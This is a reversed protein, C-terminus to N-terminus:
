LKRMQIFLLLVSTLPNQIREVMVLVNSM